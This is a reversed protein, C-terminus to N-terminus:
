VNGSSKFTKHSRICTWNTGIMIAYFTMWTALHKECSSANSEPGM